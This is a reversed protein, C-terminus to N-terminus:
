PLRPVVKGVVEGGGLVPINSIRDLAGRDVGDAQDAGIVRLLAVTIAPIARPSGDEM